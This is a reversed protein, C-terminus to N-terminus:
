YNGGGRSQVFIQTFISAVIRGLTNPTIEVTHWGRQIKGDGDKALYPIIDVETESIRLGPVVKGDVRVEVATPRPGQFIGYLIGHTHDPLSIDHKHEPITIEHKHDSLKLDHKHDPLTLNHKHDPLNVNHSHPPVYVNHDHDIFHSHSLVDHTHPPISVTHTHMGDMTIAPATDVNNPNGHNHAQAAGGHNHSGNPSTTYVGGGGSVAMGTIVNGSLIMRGAVLHDGQKTAGDGDIIVSNGNTTTTLTAGGNETSTLIAGGAATTTSTGGGAATSTLVGGGAATSTIVGGGAKTSTLIAGGGAIARSYLMWINENKM